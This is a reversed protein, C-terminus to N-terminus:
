EKIVFEVRRNKAKGEATQNTDIPKQEGYGVAVLRGAEVKGRKVLYDVVAQARGQSLKLNAKDDGDGDTHGGVEIKKIQPNALMVKAVEDLLSFSVPKISTKSTDFYIVDNIEIKQATVVVRKPCGDSKAPDERPDKPETPCLDRKDIVLDNDKDPCGKANVTGADTPCADDRDAVKDGDRDPCGGTAEPGGDFPCDDDGDTLGDGDNDPDPCGDSDAHGDTDEAQDRCKDREDTLGDGDNDPDPCGDADKYSDVDEAKDVCKDEKDTIGDKDKDPPAGHHWGVAAVFRFDPSGVGAVVGSGLGLTATLGSDHEYTGYGHLEVPNKNYAGVGGALGVTGDLEAGVRLQESLIYGAGLGFDLGSGYDYDGVTTSPALRTGLSGSLAIKEGLTTGALANLGASFGGPAVMAEGNGTPLNVFPKFAIALASDKGPRVVPLLGGVRIDGMAFGSFDAGPADISPYLPVDLDLRAVQGITYGGGLRTMFQSAVYPSEVGDKISVVPNTAYGLILGGYWDGPIGVVPSEVQLGGLGDLTSGAPDFTEADLALAPASLALFLM